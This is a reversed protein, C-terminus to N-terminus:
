FLVHNEIVILVEYKSVVRGRSLRVNRHTLLIFAFMMLPSLLGNFIIYLISYATPQTAQCWAGPAAVFLIPAQISTLCSYIITISITWPMMKLQNLRHIPSGLGCTSAFRDITSMLLFNISLHPLFVLLFLDIKCLTTSTSWPISIGYMSSLYNPFLNIFLTIIDIISGCFSYICCTNSRLEAQLYTFLNGIFGIFGFIVFILPLYNIFRQTVLSLDGSISKSIHLVDITHTTNNSSMINILYFTPGEKV